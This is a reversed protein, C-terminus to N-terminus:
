VERGISSSQVHVVAKVLTRLYGRQPMKVNPALVLLSLFNLGLLPKLFPVYGVSLL